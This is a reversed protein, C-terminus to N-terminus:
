STTARTSPSRPTDPSSTARQTRFSNVGFDNGNAGYVKATVAVLFANGLFYNPDNTNMWAIATAKGDGSMAVYTQFNVSTATTTNVQFEQGLRNGYRDYRQAEITNFFSLTQGKGQWGITFDGNEDMGISPMTSDNVAITNVQFADGLPMVGQIPTEGIGDHNMDAVFPVTNYTYGAPSFRRAYIDSITGTNTVNPVDGQWTIVFDGDADMAVQANFQNYQSPVNSEPDQPEPNNVRFADSSQKIITVSASVIPPHLTSADLVAMADRELFGNDGLFTVDFQTASRATVTVSTGASAAIPSNYAAYTTAVPLISADPPFFVPAAPIVYSASSNNFRYAINAATTAPNSSVVIPDTTQTVPNGNADFNTFQLVFSSGPTLSGIDIRQVERTFYRAYVNADGVGDYQSWTAVFDGNNDMAVSKGACAPTAATLFEHGPQGTIQPILNIVNQNISMDIAGAPSLSLLQRQELPDIALRRPKRGRTTHHKVGTLRDWVRNWATKHNRAKAKQLVSM